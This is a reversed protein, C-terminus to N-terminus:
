VKLSVSRLKLIQADLTAMKAKCQLIEADIAEISTAPTCTSTGPTSSLAVDDGGGSVDTNSPGATTGPADVGAAGDNNTTDASVEREKDITHGSTGPPAATAEEDEDDQGDQGDDGNNRQEDAQATEPRNASQNTSDDVKCFYFFFYKETFSNNKKRVQPAAEMSNTQAENAQTNVLISQSLPQNSETNENGEIDTLAPRESIRGSRLPLEKLSYEYQSLVRYNESQVM